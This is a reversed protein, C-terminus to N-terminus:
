RKVIVIEKKDNPNQEIWNVLGPYGDVYVMNEIIVGHFINVVIKSQLISPINNFDIETIKRDLQKLPQKKMPKDKNNKQM